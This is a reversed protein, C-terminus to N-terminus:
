SRGVVLLTLDDSARAGGVFERVAEILSECCGDAGSSAHQRITDALRGEGFQEEASNEAEPIGDSYAVLLDGPGMHLKAVEYREGFFSSEVVGLVVGSLGLEEIEGSEARWLYAPNHGASIWTVSGDSQVLAVFASVFKGTESHEVVYDNVRALARGPEGESRLAIQIAAQTSAALLSAPLGKGSVDAVVALVTDDDIRALDYFDGGVEHSPICLAQFEFGPLSPIHLPWLQQQTQRALDLEKEQERRQQAVKRLDLRTLISEAETALGRLIQEDLGSLQHVSHTSDLYLVGRVGEGDGRRLPLGAVARLALEHISESEIDLSDDDGVGFFPADTTLVEDIVTRSGRFGAESLQGEEAHWGVAFRPTGHEIFLICAREAGSLTLVARLVAVFTGEITLDQEFQEQLDLLLHVKGLADEAESGSFQAALEDYVITSESAQEGAVDIELQGLQLLSGPWFQSRAVERGDVATGNTSGLDEIWWRGQEFTIRAHRSSVFDYRFQVDCSASRGVLAPFHDVTVDGSDGSEPDHWHLTLPTM